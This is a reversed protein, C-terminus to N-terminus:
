ASQPFGYLLAPNKVLIRNRTAAESAWDALLDFMAADDPKTEEGPHPWNTGWVLREPAADIYARALAGSDPYHPPGMKSADYPAVLKVWTNGSDILRRIQAFLPHDPGEPEPVHGFRDLVVPTPLRRLVPLLPPLDAAWVNIEVHWGLPAIRRALPEIMTATTAGNSPAFNFYLGRVGLRDFRKLVADAVATDVVAVARTDGGFAALSDLLCRNDGGYASPQVLVQRRIGLRRMLARYDQPTADDPRKIADSFAPYRHDYVYHHCDTAGPPAELRPTESGSSWPAASAGPEEARGAVLVAAAGALLERRRM